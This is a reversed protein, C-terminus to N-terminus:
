LKISKLKSQNEFYMLASTGHHLIILEDTVELMKSIILEVLIYGEIKFMFKNSININDTIHPHPKFITLYGPYTMLINEIDPHINWSSLYLVVKKSKVKDLIDIANESLFTEADEFDSLHKIFQKNFEMLKKGSNPYVSKHIESNYLYIGKVYKSGGILEQHGFFSYLKTIIKNIIGKKRLKGKYNGIGEEYVYVNMLRYVKRLFRYKKIGYDAYIFLNNVVSKNNIIWTIADEQDNFLIIDDWYTSNAKLATYIKEAEDFCNVLLCIKYGAININTANFYQIPKTVLFSNIYAVKGMM